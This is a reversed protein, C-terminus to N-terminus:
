RKQTVCLTKGDVCWAAEVGKPAAIQLKTGQDTQRVILGTPWWVYVGLGFAGVAVIPAAVVLIVLRRLQRPLDLMATLLPYMPNEKDIGAEFLMREERKMRRGADTLLRFIKM